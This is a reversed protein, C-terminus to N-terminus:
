SADHQWRTAGDVCYSGGFGGPNRCTGDILDRNGIPEGLDVVHEVVGQGVCTYNGPPLSAVTFTVVIEDEHFALTPELIETNPGCQLSSVRARLTQSDKTPPDEENITWVAPEGADAEGGNEDEVPEQSPVFILGDGDARGLIRLEGEVLEYTAEQGFVVQFANNNAEAADCRIDVRPGPDLDPAAIIGNVVATSIGYGCDDTGTLTGGTITISGDGAAPLRNGGRVLAALRWTGELTGTLATTTGAPEEADDKGQVSALVAERVEADLGYFTFMVGYAPLVAEYWGEPHGATTAVWRERAGVGEVARDGPGESAVPQVHITRAYDTTLPCSAGTVAEADAALFVGDTTYTRCSFDYGGAKSVPLDAPVQFTIGNYEVATVVERVVDSASGTGVAAVDSRSRDSGRSSFVGATLAAVLVLPVAALAGKRARRKRRRAALDSWLVDVKAADGTTSTLRELSSRIDSDVDRM